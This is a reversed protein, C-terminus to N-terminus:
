NKLGNAVVKNYCQQLTTGKSIALEKRSYNYIFSQEPILDDFDYVNIEFLSLLGDEAISLYEPNYRDKGRLSVVGIDLRGPFRSEVLNICDKLLEARDIFDLQDYYDGVYNSFIKKSILFDRLDDAAFDLNFQEIYIM